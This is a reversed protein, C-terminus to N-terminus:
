IEDTIILHSINKINIEIGKSKTLFYLTNPGMEGEWKIFLIQNKSLNDILALFDIKLDPEFLIGINHIALYTGLEVDSQIHDSLIQDLKGKVKLTLNNKNPFEKIEQALSAGIDLSIVIPLAKQYIVIKNRSQNNIYNFIKEESLNNM